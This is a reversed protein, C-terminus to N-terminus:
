ADSRLAIVPEMRTARWAPVLSAVFGVLLLLLAVAVMTATDTPSVGYLLRGMLRGSGVVGVLGVVLGVALLRAPESLVSAVM